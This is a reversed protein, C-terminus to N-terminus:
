ERRVGARGAAPNVSTGARLRDLVTALPPWAARGRRTVAYSRQRVVPDALALLAVGDAVERDRPLLGVGMGATILAEVLELSDSTHTLNPEFGALSAITRVVDEDARNRSNAIWEANRYAAFVELTDGGLAKHEVPSPVGLAWDTSWLPVAEVTPDFGVPALSYDYTVALDVDDAGLLALAEAPEHEALVVQIGPHRRRLGSVIPVMMTGIVSAYGAVRVRGVPEADPDLDVRAAEVAALITVAHDALRRGAPTLRVRRGDREVVDVGVERALAAIQQSVSSTSIALLDAVEHMSGLRSLEVLVRLRRTEVGCDDM